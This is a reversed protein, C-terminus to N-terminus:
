RTLDIKKTQDGREVKFGLGSTTIDYYRPPIPVYKGAAKEPTNPPPPADKKDGLGKRIEPPLGGPLVSPGGPPPPPPELNRNDVIIKVDGVPLTAEYNGREDIPVTVSNQKSDAPFFTVQGGPLPTGNLLVQGSVKSRATGGCGTVVPLLLLLGLRGVFGPWGSGFLDSRM